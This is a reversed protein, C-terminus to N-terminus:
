AAAAEASRALALAAGERMGFPVVVLPRGLAQAAERLLVAGALITRARHPHFRFTTALKAATAGTAVRVIADLDDVSLEQGAIRAAARASGGTAYAADPCPAALNGFARHAAEQAQRVTSEQPPDGELCLQTLRLSGLDISRVWAPGLLPTGVAVETSGGGVDVVSVVEPLPRESRQVVGEFALRGEEEASLVRVPARTSRELAHLLAPARADQRGPATVLTCVQDAGEAQARRVYARAIGATREVTEARLSGWRAIEQGLGLYARRTDVEVLGGDAAVDAVLLRATNSGIDIVGVRTTQMSNIRPGPGSTLGEASVPAADRGSSRVANCPRRIASPRRDRRTHLTVVVRREAAGLRERQRRVRQGAGCHAGPAGECRGGADAGRDAPRPQPADPRRQRHLDGPAGRGRVFLHPQARPLSRLHLAGPDNESMGEVGPRLMCIARACIDIRVGAQSAAYLEEILVPDVIQNLKIRIRSREGAAAAAAVRRIEEILRTRMAFPAVLLKEFAQPRGFGTMHNFLDAVDGAIEEDATFLGVDEYLRATAANYNGTGIHVYRRLGGEERRVVLTMKAHIKLEAFGHVVHVGAQEMARSWEINRREDFRAKLEVLCVSQKGQEACEILASLLSSDDSTRYVTTKIAIVDPDSAAAQAFAEFSTRFSDYPQHVIVDARRIEDFLGDANKVGAFRPHTVPVWPEDKLEPRDVSAVQMLDALDLPGEIEYVQDQPVELGAVLRTRMARSASASLELRVADGFRRRRLESEVAELLDDADDSLEFDADRTVRFAAREAIEMGPFLMPLFHGIVAELPVLREGVAVFRDLGEPVKVRAFREEGTAPDVALVGLSLSLGSIYPFPQGPGVALPTLVPYIEREFFRELRELERQSCDEISM